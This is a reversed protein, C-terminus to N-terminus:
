LLLLKEGHNQQKSYIRNFITLSDFIKYYCDHKMLIIYSGKEKSLRLFQKDIWIAVVVELYRCLWRELLQDTFALDAQFWNNNSRSSTLPSNFCRSKALKGSAFLNLFFSFTKMSINSHFLIAHIKKDTTSFFSNSSSGTQWQIIVHVLINCQFFFLGNIWKLPLSMDVLGTRVLWHLWMVSMDSAYFAQGRQQHEACSYLDEPRHIWVLPCLIIQDPHLLM